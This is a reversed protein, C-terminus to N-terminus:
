PNDIILNPTVHIAPPRTILKKQGKLHGEAMIVEYFYGGHLHVEKGTYYALDGKFYAKEKEM